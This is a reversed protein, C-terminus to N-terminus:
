PTRLVQATRSAQAALGAISSTIFSAGGTLDGVIHLYQDALNLGGSPHLTALGTDAPSRVLEEAAASIAQPRPKVANVVTGAVHAGDQDRM